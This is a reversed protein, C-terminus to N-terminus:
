ITEQSRSNQKLGEEELWVYFEKEKGSININASAQRFYGM